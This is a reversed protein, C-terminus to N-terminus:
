WLNRITQLRKSTTTGKTTLKHAISIFGHTIQNYTSPYLSSMLHGVLIAQLRQPPALGNRTYAQTPAWYKDRANPFTNILQLVKELDRIADQGRGLEVLIQGRGMLVFTNDPKLELSRNYDAIAEEPHGSYWLHIGRCHFATADDSHRELFESFFEIGKQNEENTLWLYNLLELAYEILGRDDAQANKLAQRALNEAGDMDNAM